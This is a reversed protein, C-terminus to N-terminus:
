RGLVQAAAAQAERWAEQVHRLQTSATGVALRLTVKGGLVTHVIFVRGAHFLWMM